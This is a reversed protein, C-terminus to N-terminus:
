SRGRPSRGQASRVQLVATEKGLKSSDWSVKAKGDPGVEATLEAVSEGTDIDTLVFKVNVGNDVDATLEISAGPIVESLDAKVNVALTPETAEKIAEEVREKAAERVEERAEEARKNAEEPHLGPSRRERDRHGCAREGGRSSPTPATCRSPWRARRAASAARSGAGDPPRSPSEPGQESDTGRVARAADLCGARRATTMLVDERPTSRRAAATNSADGQPRPSATSSSRRCGATADWTPRACPTSGGDDKGPLLGHDECQGFRVDPGKPSPHPCCPTRAQRGRRGAIDHYTRGPM